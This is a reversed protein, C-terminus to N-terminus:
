IKDKFETKTKSVQLRTCLSMVNDVTGNTMLQQYSFPM